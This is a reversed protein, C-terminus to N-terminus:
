RTLKRGIAHMRGGSLEPAPQSKRARPSPTPTITTLYNADRPLSTRFTQADALSRFDQTWVAPKKEGAFPTWRRFDQIHVRFSGTSALTCDLEPHTQRPLSM